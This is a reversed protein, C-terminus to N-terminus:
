ANGYIAGLICPHRAGTVKTLNIPIGHLAQQALWAFTVAELFDGAVGLADTTQIKCAPLLAILRNRLAKNHAGGGCLYIETAGMCYQNIGQKISLCTLELLTAQVDEVRETGCLKSRLWAINFLDRGTSKPPPLAFFPENLLQTLV